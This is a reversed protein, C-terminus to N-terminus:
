APESRPRQATVATSGDGGSRPKRVHGPASVGGGHRERRVESHAPFLGWGSSGDGCLADRAQSNIHCWGVAWWRTHDVDDGARGERPAVAMGINMNVALEGGQVKESNTQLVQASHLCVVGVASRKRYM